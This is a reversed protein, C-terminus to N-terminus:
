KGGWLVGGESVDFEGVLVKLVRRKGGGRKGVIGLTQGRCLTFYIEKLRYEEEKGYWFRDIVGEINGRALEVSGDGGEEIWNEEKLLS